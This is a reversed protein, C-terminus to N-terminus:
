FKGNIDFLVVDSKYTPGAVEDASMWRLGFSVRPSVALNGYVTYGKLNTGGLGFDSDNFGDIVADSEIYRYNVGLNWNWRQDLAASGMTLNVIWATDGGAYSGLGGLNDNPGRNNVAIRNIDGGDFGLNKVWEGNLSIRFPEWGDYDIRGTLALPRFKSALGFYQWQNITGFDNSADTPCSCTSSLPRAM